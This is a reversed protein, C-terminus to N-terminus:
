PVLPMQGAVFLWGEHAVPHHWQERPTLHCLNLVDLPVASVLGSAWSFSRSIARLPNELLM